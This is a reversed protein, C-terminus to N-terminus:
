GKKVLKYEIVPKGRTGGDNSIFSNFKLKYINGSADKILFFTDAKVGIPTTVGNTTVPQTLRWNSGIVNRASSFTIAPLDAEAFAAYSKTSTSVAAASVGALKNIFVLDSFNYPVLDSGFTTQYVSYTWVLDWNAKEPEVNVVAGNNLSVFKFNFNGDKPIDVTTFNTTEKIKGYQLSYGGSANRTVKLKIWSKAAIGGGTGRNLIIVKNEAATASVAPIVTNSLNGDIADFFAFHAPLPNAQSVALTLGLTDAEGVTALSANATTIVKAGASTTNNLIVRFDAGCYFGLDWAARAVATQKDTSFDVFVSNGAASGTEAGILGNLTLTSGDSPPVVVVPEETDKKCATFTAAILAIAIMSNFKNM